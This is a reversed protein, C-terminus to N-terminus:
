GTGVKEGAGRSQMETRHTDNILIIISSSGDDDSSDTNTSKETDATLRLQQNRLYDSSQQM